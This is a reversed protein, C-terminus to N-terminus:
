AINFLQQPLLAREFAREGPPAHRARRYKPSHTIAMVISVMLFPARAARQRGDARRRRYDFFLDDRRRMKTASQGLFRFHLPAAAGM